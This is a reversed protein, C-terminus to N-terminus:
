ESYQSSYRSKALYPMMCLLLKFLAYLSSVIADSVAKKSCFVLCLLSTVIETSNQSLIFVVLLVDIKGPVFDLFPM